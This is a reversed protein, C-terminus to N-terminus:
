KREAVCYVYEQRKGNEQAAARLFIQSGCIVPTSFIETGLKNEAVIELEKPSAKFITTIGSESPVYIHEGMLIPSASYGGKLRGNWQEDGTDAKWCYAVGGDTVAYVFGKHALLSPVYVKVRNKWAVAGNDTRFATTISDPYGGSVFALDGDVVATGVCETTTGKTRWLERGTMPDYSAFIDCGGLLLQDKGAVNFVVPSTYNPQAPRDTKWIIQGTKRHLAALYGGGKHDGSILVFSQYISPSQSYGWHSTYSGLKTQWLQKGDLDLATAILENKFLFVTFLREGDCAVTSSAHTNKKNTKEDLHGSHLDTKWKLEGTARDLCLVSQVKAQEDATQLIVRNGVITPSSHGRGPIATKWAINQTESWQTPAPTLPAIGDFTPGRWWPWDGAAPKAPPLKEYDAVAVQSENAHTATAMVLVILMLKLRNM